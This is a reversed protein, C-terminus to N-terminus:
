SAPKAVWSTCWGDASVQGKQFLSCGGRGNEGAQYLACGSCVQGEKQSQNVYQIATVLMENDPYENVLGNKAAEAAAEAAEHHGAGASRVLLPAGAAFAAAAGLLTFHRRTIGRTNGDDDRM